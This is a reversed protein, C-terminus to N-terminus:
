IILGACFLSLSLGLWVCAFNVMSNFSSEAVISCSGDQNRGLAARLLVMNLEPFYYVVVIVVAVVALVNTKGAPLLVLLLM